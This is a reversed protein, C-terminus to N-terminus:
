GTRRGSPVRRSAERGVLVPGDGDPLAFLFYTKFFGLDCLHPKAHLELVSSSSFMFASIKAASAGARSPVRCGRLIVHDFLDGLREDGSILLVAVAVGVVDEDLDVSLAMRMYTCFSTTSSTRVGAVSIERSSARLILLCASSPSRTLTSTFVCAKPRMAAWVALCTMMWPMRSASRPM